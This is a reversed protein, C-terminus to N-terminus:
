SEHSEHDVEMVHGITNSQIINMQDQNVEQFQRNSFQLTIVDDIMSSTMQAGVNSPRGNVRGNDLSFVHRNTIIRKTYTMHYTDKEM